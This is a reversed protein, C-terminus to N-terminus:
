TKGKKMKNALLCLSASTPFFVPTMQFINGCFYMGQLIPTTVFTSFLKKKNEHNLCIFINNNLFVGSRILLYQFAIMFLNCEKQPTELEPILDAQLPRM